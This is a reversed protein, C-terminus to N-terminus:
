EVDQITLLQHLEKGTGILQEIIEEKTKRWTSIQNEKAINRIETYSMEYLKEFSDKKKEDELKQKVIKVNQKQALKISNKEKLKQMREKIAQEFLVRSKRM